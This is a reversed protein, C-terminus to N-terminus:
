TYSSWLPRDDGRGFRALFEPFAMAVNRAEEPLKSLIRDTQGQILLCWSGLVNAKAKAKAKAQAKAKAEAKAQAAKAKKLEEELDMCFKGESLFRHSQMGFPSKGGLRTTRDDLTQAITRLRRNDISAACFEKSCAIVLKRVGRYRVLPRCPQEQVGAGVVVAIFLLHSPTASLKPVLVARRCPHIGMAIFEEVSPKVFDRLVQGRHGVVTDLGVGPLLDISEVFFVPSDGGCNRRIQKWSVRAGRFCTNVCRARRAEYKKRLKDRTRVPLLSLRSEPKAHLDRLEKKKTRRKEAAKEVMKKFLESEEAQCLEKLRSGSEALCGFVSLGSSTGDSQKIAESRARKIATMTTQGGRMKTYLHPRKVGKDKRVKLNTLLRTGFQDAYRNQVHQWFSGIPVGDVQLEELPLGDVMVKLGAFRAFKGLKPRDASSRREAAFSREAESESVLFALMFCVIRKLPHVEELSAVARAWAHQDKEDIQKSAKVVPYMQTYAAEAAKQDEREWRLQFLLDKLLDPSADRQLHFCRFLRQTGFDPYEGHLYVIIGRAVNAVRAQCKVVAERGPKEMIVHQKGFQAVSTEDLMKMVRAIYTGGRRQWMRGAVYERKLMAIFDELACAAEVPDVEREDLKRVYAMCDESLDALMGIMVWTQGDLEKMIRAAWKAREPSTPICVELSLCEMVAKGFVVFRTLPRERSAFRQPAFSFNQLAAVMGEAAKSGVRMAFRESSRIYKAVECVITKTISNSTPDAKWAAKIAGVIGHGACRLVLVLNPLGEAALKGALQEDPAGDPTFTRVKQRVERKLEADDGCVEDIAAVLHEALNDTTDYPLSKRFDMLRDVVYVHKGSLNRIQPPSLGGPLGNGMAMRCRIVLQSKRADMTLSIDTCAKLLVRDENRLEDAACQVIRKAIERTRRSRPIPAGCARTQELDYEYSKFSAGAKAGKYATFCMAFSPVDQREAAQPDVEEGVKEELLARQAHRHQASGAHTELHSFRTRREGRIGCRAWPTMRARKQRSQHWRCLKCGIGWAHGPESRQELWSGVEDNASNYTLMKSWEDYHKQYRCRACKHDVGVREVHELWTECHQEKGLSAVSSSSSGESSSSSGDSSSSSGDSSSSSGESGEKPGASEADSSNLDDEGLPLGIEDASGDNTSGESGEKPGDSEADSSNLDDEDLPLGIEDASSDDTLAPMSSGARTDAVSCEDDSSDRSPPPSSVDSMWRKVVVQADVVGAPSAGGCGDVKYWTCEVQKEQM